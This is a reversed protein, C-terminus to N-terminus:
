MFTKIENICFRKFYGNEENQGLKMKINTKAKGIFNNKSMKISFTTEYIQPGYGYLQGKHLTWGGRLGLRSIIYLLTPQNQYM